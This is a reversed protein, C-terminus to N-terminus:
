RTHELTRASSRDLWRQLETVSVLKLRGRRVWQLDPGVHESFYDESVGLARAAEAPRLALRPVERGNASSM